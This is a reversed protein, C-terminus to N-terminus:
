LYFISAEKAAPSRGHDPMGPLRGHIASKTGSRLKGYDSLSPPDRQNEHKYFEDTAADPRAQVSMLLKTVLATNGNATGLKDAGKKLDTPPRNNFTFSNVRPIANCLPKFARELIDTAFERFM